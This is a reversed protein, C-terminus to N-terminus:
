SSQQVIIVSGDPNITVLYTVGDKTLTGSGSGDPAFDFEGSLIPKEQNNYAAQSAYVDFILHASGDSYNEASFKTFTGDADTWDGAVQNVDLSETITINGSSGDPNQIALETTKVNGVLSQHITVSEKKVSGDKFTVERSFTGNLTSDALNMTFDGAEHVSVPDHGAPFTITQSFSGVGDQDASDFTGEIRTGDRKTESYTGTGDAKFTISELHTKGDSFTTTKSYNGGQGAHYEFREKTKSIFSSGSYTIESTLLGGDPEAGPSYPDPIFSGKEEQILRGPKYRKVNELSKLVDDSDDFLTFNLDLRVVTSDYDLPHSDRFAFRVVTFTGEGSQADYTLIVRQSVGKASDRETVDFIVSDGTVGELRAGRKMAPQLQIAAERRIEHYFSMAAKPNRVQPVDLNAFGNKGQMLKSIENFSSLNKYIDSGRESAAQVAPDAPKQNNDPSTVQNDSSCASLWLMAMSLLYFLVQKTKM